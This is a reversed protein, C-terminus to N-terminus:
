PALLDARAETIDAIGSLRMARTLEDTLIQLARQAGAEAGALAGYLTARGTLVGQAGLARAKLIDVGRRVGGDVLVPVRGQTAQVVAPLARLTAQAGDLQRGGHNSVVIADVGMAVLRQADEPRQVGKVILRRPWHDRIEQLRSWDFSPDYNRGVAAATKDISGLDPALGILNGSVPLGRRSVAWLWRPHRLADFAVKPGIRFPTSYGNRLDRERKGGVPLDVTIMLAEFDAAAARAILQQLFSRNRLIYAQFWHRAGPAARAIEEISATASTSLTYPIGFHAAARALGIDADHHGYGSGGTPAIAMPFRADAGVLTCQTRVQAVDVLVHPLIRCAQFAERNARLTIEEEAGGDYFDFLVQPLRARAAQRLDEISHASRLRAASSAWTHTV